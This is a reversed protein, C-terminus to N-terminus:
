PRPEQTLTLTIFAVKETREKPHTAGPKTGEWTEVTKTTDTRTISGEGIFEATQGNDYEVIVRKIRDM